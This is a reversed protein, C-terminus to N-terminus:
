PEPMPCGSLVAYYQSKPVTPTWSCGFGSPALALSHSGPHLSCRPAAALCFCPPRQAGQCGEGGARQSRCISRHALCWQLGSPLSDASATCVTWVTPSLTLLTHLPDPPTVLSIRYVLSIRGQHGLPALQPLSSNWKQAPPPNWQVLNTCYFSSIACGTKLFVFSRQFM